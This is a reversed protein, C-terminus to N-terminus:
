MASSIPVSRSTKTIVLTKTRYTAAPWFACNPESKATTPRTLAKTRNVSIALMPIADPPCKLGATVVAKM